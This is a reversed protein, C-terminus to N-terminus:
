SHESLPQVSQLVQDATTQDKLRSIIWHVVDQAALCSASTAINGNAVFHKQVVIAGYERLKEVSTPYTTAEQNKLYGLTGLMLAGSCLGAIMQKSPNINLQELFKTDDLLSRIGPGSAVIVADMEGCKTAPGTTEIKLGCKSVHTRASGLIEVQWDTKNLLTRVRNLLDWPLFLDIDTFDDFILIGVKKM